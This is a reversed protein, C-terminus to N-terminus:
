STSGILLKVVQRLKEQVEPDNLDNTLIMRVIDKALGEEVDSISPPTFSVIQDINYYYKVEVPVLITKIEIEYYEADLDPLSASAKFMVQSEAPTGIMINKFRLQKM